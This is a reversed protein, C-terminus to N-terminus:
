AIFNLQDAISQTDTVQEVVGWKVSNVDVEDGVVLGDFTVPIESANDGFEIVKVWESGNYYARIFSLKEMITKGTSTELIGQMWNGVRVVKGNKLDQGAITAMVCVAINSGDVLPNTYTPTYTPAISPNLPRWIEIVPTSEGNDNEMYTNELEDGNNLPTSYGIDQASKHGQLVRSDIDHTFRVKNNKGHIVQGCFVWDYPFEGESKLKRIDVFHEGPSTIVLTDTPESPPDIGWQISVRTSISM